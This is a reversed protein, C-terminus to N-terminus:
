IETLRQKRKYGSPRDDIYGAYGGTNDQSAEDKFKSSVTVKLAMINKIATAAEELADLDEKVVADWATDMASSILEIQRQRQEIFGKRKDIESTSLHVLQKALDRIAARKEEKIEALIAEKIDM